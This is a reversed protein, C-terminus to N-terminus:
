EGVSAKTAQRTVVYWKQIDLFRDSPEVIKNAELGKVQSNQAYDYYPSYLIIAPLDKTWMQLFGSYRSNKYDQDKAVRGTELLKDADTNTYQSLNQGPDTIQSSHWYSYIDSDIGIDQGFLLVEYNRPRIYNQQLDELAVAVIDATVGVESWKQKITEAVKEYNSDKLTVIRLRNDKVQNAPLAALLAKAQDQNYQYKPATSDFGSYGALIPYHVVVAQGNLNTDVINQKDIAYSLAQRLRVDSVLASRTNFFLASYVPQSLNNITLDGIQAAQTAVEPKNIAFGSIQKKQYGTLFDNSSKYQVFNLKDIYPRGLHYNQYASLELQDENDKIENLKYPGSGVPKQNFENTRLLGPRINELIHRPIIGVTTNYLFPSYSSPLSLRITSPNVVEYKVGNWNSALPSKTDPNQIRSITFAVDNADLVQGDQWRLNPRLRFTYSKKDPSIDWSEALDGEIQRNKGVRTLGSYVVATVDSSASNEPFLPNVIKVNGSLGESYAGGSQPAVTLYHSNISDYQLVFGWVGFFLILLMSMFLWRSDGLKQWGGYIHREIYNLLWIRWINLRSRFRRTKRNVQFRFYSAM